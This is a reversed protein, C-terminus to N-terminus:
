NNVEININNGNKIEYEKLNGKERLFTVENPNLSINKHFLYIDNNIEKFIQTVQLNSNEDITVKATIEEQASLLVCNLFLAFFLIKRKM